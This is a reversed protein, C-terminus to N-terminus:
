TKEKSESNTKDEGEKIILKKKIEEDNAPTEVFGFGKPQFNYNILENFRNVTEKLLEKKTKEMIKNNKLKNNAMSYNVAM